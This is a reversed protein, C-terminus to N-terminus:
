WIKVQNGTIKYNFEGSLSLAKMVTELRLNNVNLSLLKNRLTQNEFHFKVKYYRELQRTIDMLQQKKFSLKGQQWGNIALPNVKVKKFAAIDHRYVLQDGPLLIHLTKAKNKAAARVKGTAVTVAMDRDDEYASVDFSTGLVQVDMKATHVKFPKAPNHAVKFFAEGSLFIERGPGDFSSPYSVTTQNNMTIETGDSLKLLKMEGVGTSVKAYAMKETKNGKGARNLYIVVMTSVLVFFAAAIMRSFRWLRFVKPSSQQQPYFHVQLAKSSIEQKLKIAAESVSTDVDLYVLWRAILKKEEESILGQRYKDFLEELHKRTKDM